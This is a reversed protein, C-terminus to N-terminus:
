SLMAPNNFGIFGALSQLLALGGTPLNDAPLSAGTHSTVSGMASLSCTILSSEGNPIFNCIYESGSVPSPILPQCLYCRQQEASPGMASSQTSPPCLSPPPHHQPTASECGGGHPPTGMLNPIPSGHPRRRAAQTRLARGAIISPHFARFISGLILAQRLVEIKIKKKENITIIM